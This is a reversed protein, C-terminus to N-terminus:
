RERGFVLHKWIVQHGSGQLGRGATCGALKLSAAAGTVSTCVLRTKMSRTQTPPVYSVMQPCLSCTGRPPKPFTCLQSITLTRQHTYEYLRWPAARIGTFCIM